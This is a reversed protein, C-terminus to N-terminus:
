GTLERGRALLDPLVAAMAEFDTRPSSRRRNHKVILSWTAVSKFCALAQVM